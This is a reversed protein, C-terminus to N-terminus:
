CDRSVVRNGAHWADPHEVSYANVDWDRYGSYFLARVAWLNGDKDKIYAINAYGNVLLAGEQGKSQKKLLGFFHTLTIEECQQGLERRIPADVSAKQLCHIAVTTDEVNEEVKGLFFQDFNSGPYGVNAEKLSTKDTVFRKTGAVQVGSTVLKLIPPVEHRHSAVHNAILDALGPAQNVRQAEDESLGAKNYASEVVELFKRGKSDRTTVSKASPTLTKRSM